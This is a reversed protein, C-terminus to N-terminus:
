FANATCVYTINQIYPDAGSVKVVLTESVRNVTQYTGYVNRM